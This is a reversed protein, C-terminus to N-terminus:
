SQTPAFRKDEARIWNLTKRNANQANGLISNRENTYKTWLEQAMQSRDFDYSADTPFFNYIIAAVAQARLDTGDTRINDILPKM